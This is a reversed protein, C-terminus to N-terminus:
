SPEVTIPISNLKASHDTHEEATTRVIERGLQRSTGGSTILQAQKGTPTLRVRTASSALNGTAAEM